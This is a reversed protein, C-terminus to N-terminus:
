LGAERRKAIAPNKRSYQCSDREPVNLINGHRLAQVADAPNIIGLANANHQNHEHMRRKAHFLRHPSGRPQVAKNIPGLREAHRIEKQNGPQKQRRANVAWPAFIGIALDQMKGIEIDQPHANLEGGLAVADILSFSGFTSQFGISQAKHFGESGQPENIYGM